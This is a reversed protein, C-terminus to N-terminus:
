KMSPVAFKGGGLLPSGGRAYQMFIAVGFPNCDFVGCVPLRTQTHLKHVFARVQWSILFLLFPFFSALFTIKIMTDLQDSIGTM